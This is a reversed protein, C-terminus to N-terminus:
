VGQACHRGGLAHRAQGRGGPGRGAVAAACGGAAAHPHPERHQRVSRAAPSSNSGCRRGAHLAVGRFRAVYSTFLSGDAEWEHNGACPQYPVRSAVPQIANMFANGVASEAVSLDYALDGGHIVYDYLGGETGAILAGLAVNNNLGLDAFIAYVLGGERAPQSVFSAPASFGNAADGLVYWYTTNAALGTMLATNLTGNWGRLGLSTTV